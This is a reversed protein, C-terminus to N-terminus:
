NSSSISSKKDEYCCWSFYYFYSNKLAPKLFKDWATQSGKFITKMTKKFGSGELQFQRTSFTIQKQCKGKPNHCM